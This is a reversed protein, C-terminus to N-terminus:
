LHRPFVNVAVLSSTREHTGSEKNLHFKSITIAVIFHGEWFIFSRDDPGKLFLSNSNVFILHKSGKNNQM